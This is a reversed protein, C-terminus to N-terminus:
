RKHVVTTRARKKARRYSVYWRLQILVLLVRTKLHIKGGSEDRAWQELENYSKKWNSWIASSSRVTSTETGFNYTYLPELIFEIEGPAKALYELVFKTDEAFNRGVEFRLNSKKIIEFRFIKNVVGYMRGDLILLKLLYDAKSEAERRKPRPEIYVDKSVNQQLKNYRIGAAALSARADEIHQVMKAVYDNTVEDDSDIFVIYKGNAADMGTNRAASVGMNDQHIVKLRSDVKALSQLESLSSDSSGDDVAIIELERYTQRFLTEILLRVSEGTNWVPIVVSVLPDAKTM